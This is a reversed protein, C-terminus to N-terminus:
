TRLRQELAALQAHLAEPLRSGFKAYHEQMQSLQALWGDRDVELLKSMQESGIELGDTDIGGEGVPPVLGIPTEVAV